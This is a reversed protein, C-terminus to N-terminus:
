VKVGGGGGTYYEGLSIRRIRMIIRIRIIFYLETINPKTNM